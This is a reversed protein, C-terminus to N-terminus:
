AAKASEPDDTMQPRCGVPPLFWWPVDPEAGSLRSEMAILGEEELRALESPNRPLGASPRTLADAPVCPIVEVHPESRPAARGETAEVMKLHSPARESATM